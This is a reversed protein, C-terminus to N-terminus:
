RPITIFIRAGQGQPKYVRLLVPRNADRTMAERYERLSGVERRNIEMIVDGRALGERAARSRQDVDVVLLGNVDEPISARSRLQPTLERVTVGELGDDATPGTGRRTAVQDQDPLAELKVKRTITKGERWLSLEVEQGVPQLSVTNRLQQTTDVPKDNIALIIDLEKLGAKDAPAGATVSSVLVGQPRPLGAREAEAQTVGQINVGLWARTVAGEDKLEAIIRQVMNAPIAFGIGQSGGSRSLIASNIGIVEGRMNVLAGGSNGPNISADTQIHDEYEMLGISRGKASVIGMTVTQGVGFPNGVALVREGVRLHDSDGFSVHPLPRNVKIKLLALDTQPDTGVVEADFTERDNFTIRISEANEVVHNNTVIYGDASIVVGSGLSRELRQRQNDGGDPIDFFRRFFPDDFFPHARREVLKDTNLNVVAPMVKEAVDAPDLAAFTQATAARVALGGGLSVPQDAAVGPAPGSDPSGAGATLILGGAFGVGVLLAAGLLRSLRDQTRM